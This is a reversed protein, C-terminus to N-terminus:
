CARPLRARITAIRGDLMTANATVLNKGRGLRKSGITGDFPAKGDKGSKKGNGYFRASLVESASAGTLKAKVGAAM